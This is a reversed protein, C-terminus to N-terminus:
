RLTTNVATAEITVERVPENTNNIIDRNLNEEANEELERIIELPSTQGNVSKIFDLVGQKIAIAAVATKAEARTKYIHHVSFVRSTHRLIKIKLACGQKLAL